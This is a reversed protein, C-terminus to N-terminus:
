QHSSAASYREARAEIADLILELGYDFQERGGTAAVMEDAAATIAPFEDDPLALLAARAVRREPPTPAHPGFLMSGFVHVFLVRFARAAEEPPFGADLLIRMGPESLRFASPQLIPQRGRLQPLAPHRELIERVADVHARIRERLGGDPPAFDFEDAAAGVAADLLEEKSRFYGYLTMTGAGLRDALRRMSLADIGEEDLMALAARAIEDRGLSPRAARQRNVKSVGAAM